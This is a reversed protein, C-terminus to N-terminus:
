NKTLTFLNPSKETLTFYTTTLGRPTTTDDWVIKEATPALTKLEEITCETKGAKLMETFEKDAELGKPDAEIVAPETAAPTKTTDGEKIEEIIEEATVVPAAANTDKDEVYDLIERVVWKDYAKMDSIVSASPTYKKGAKEAKKEQLGIAVEIKNISKIGIQADAPLDKVSLKHEALLKTYAKEM